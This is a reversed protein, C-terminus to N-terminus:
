VFCVTALLFLLSETIETMAGLMDGTICGLKKKYVRIIYLVVFVFCINLWIGRFGLCFSLAVPLLLWSFANITLPEKFHDHGTGEKRGYELFRIGFLMSARAYAPIILLFIYREYGSAPLSSIGGWKIGLGCFVAVLGMVGIRSDKMIELQRDKPRHSFLGDAADALGDLHFAGTVIILFIVDLIAIVQTKWFYGACYDFLCLLIGIILGVVPYFPLMGTPHYESTKGAPLVSIFQIASILNKM